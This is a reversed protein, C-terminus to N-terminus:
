YFMADAMLKLTKCVCKAVHLRRWCLRRRSSLWRSISCRCRRSKTSPVDLIRALILVLEHTNNMLEYPENLLVSSIFLDCILYILLQIFSYIFLGIYMIYIYINIYYRERKEKRERETEKDRESYTYIYIYIHLFLYPYIFINM